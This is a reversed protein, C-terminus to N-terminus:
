YKKFTREWRTCPFFNVVTKVLDKLKGSIGKNNIYDLKSSAYSWYIRWPKGIIYQEPVPGWGRSDFSHNRNDGMCFFHGPPVKYAKGYPTDLVFGKYQDPFARHWDRPSEPPFYSIDGHGKFVAYPEDLLEGNILVRNGIIKVVDGPLGIIRKVLNKAPQNKRIENPGSFTVIMGRDPKVQPLISGDISNLSQSYSIKDVVLHDGILMSNEMSESPIVYTQLLFTNVFFVFLIVEIFLTLYSASSKEDIQAAVENVPEPQRSQPELVVPAPDTFTEPSGLDLETKVM